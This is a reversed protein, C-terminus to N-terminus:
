EYIFEGELNYKHINDLTVSNIDKIKILDLDINKEKYVRPLNSNIETIDLESCSKPLEAIQRLLNIGWAESLGNNWYKLLSNRRINGFKIPLYPSVTIDGYANIGVYHSYGDIRTKSRVLHDIPDGWDFQMKNTGVNNVKKKNIYRALKRYDNYEPMYDKLNQEARGLLMLPQMRFEDVKLKECLEVVKEIQNINRLTPTTAVGVRLNCEKLYKIAQVAKKFSGKKNRIWDHLEDCHGDLSVQINSIGSDKLNQAVERTVLEGNTVMNVVIENKSEDTLLKAIKYILEKRLLPEGGCICIVNPKLELIDRVVDLVNEDSMEEIGLNHEGSSNFCHLCRLTCRYTIDLSIMMPGTQIKSDKIFNEEM